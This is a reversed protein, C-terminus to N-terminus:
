KDWVNNYSGCLETTGSITLTGLHAQAIIPKQFFPLIELITQGSIESYVFLGGVIIILVLGVNIITKWKM